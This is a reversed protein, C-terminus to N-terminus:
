FCLCIICIIMESLQKWNFDRNLTSALAGEIGSSFKGKLAKREHRALRRCFFCCCIIDFGNCIHVLDDKWLVPFNPIKCWEVLLSTICICFFQSFSRGILRVDPFIISLIIRSLIIWCRDDCCIVDSQWCPKVGVLNHSVCNSDHANSSIVVKISLPFGTSM